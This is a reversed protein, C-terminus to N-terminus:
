LGGNITHWKQIESKEKDNLHMYMAPLRPWISVSDQSNPVEEDFDKDEFIQEVLSSDLFGVYSFIGEWENM